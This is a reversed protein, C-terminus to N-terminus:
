SLTIWKRVANILIDNEAESQAAVRFHRIGLCEFNSADRILIGYNDIMWSKLQAASRDPLEVLIFNCDSPTVILGIDTFAKSVRIIEKHLGVADIHYDNRNQLLYLASAIAISNVSWPMRFKKLNDLIKKHGVSYGIRLGPVAFRKTLSYLLIINDLKDMVKPSLTPKISYDSYAQDVVFLKDPNAEIISLLIDADYARGTPNNPNCIWVLDCDSPIEIPSSIFSVNHRFVSCADQYERFTPVVIASRKRQAMIAILYIAETAGNTVFVNDKNISLINAILEEVSEAEPEPYNKFIDGISALHGILASHDVNQHINTSFNYKIRDGYRFVDDGHGYTM